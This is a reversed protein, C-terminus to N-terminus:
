EKNNECRANHVISAISSFLGVAVFCILAVVFEDSRMFAMMPNILDFIVIGLIMLALVLNLHPLIRHLKM